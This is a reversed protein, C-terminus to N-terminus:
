LKSGCEKIEQRKHQPLLAKVKEICWEEMHQLMAKHLIWALLWIALGVCVLAANPDKVDQTVAGPAGLWLTGGVAAICLVLPIFRPPPWGIEKVLRGIAFLSIFLLVLSPAGTIQNVINELLQFLLDM